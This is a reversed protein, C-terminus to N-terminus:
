RQLSLELLSELKRIRQKLFEVDPEPGRAPSAEGDGEGAAAAAEGNRSRRDTGNAGAHGDREALRRDLREIERRAEAVAVLFDDPTVDSDAAVLGNRLCDRILESRPVELASARGDVDELLAAPVRVTVKRTEAAAFGEERGIADDRRVFEHHAGCLHVTRPTGDRLTLAHRRVGDSSGCVLCRGDVVGAETEAEVDADVDAEVDAPVGVGVEDGRSM